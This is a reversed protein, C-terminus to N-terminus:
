RCATRALIALMATLYAVILNKDAAKKALKTMLSQIQLISEEIIPEFHPLM